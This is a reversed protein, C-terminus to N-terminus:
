ELIFGGGHLEGLAHAEETTIDQQQYLNGLLIRQLDTPPYYGDLPTALQTESSVPKTIYPTVIIVLETQDNQFEQSRFLAGLVPIEGLGPFKEISNNNDNSYLGAIAFSQGSALEVTTEARRVLLTPVNYTVSSSVQLSNISTLSSVEPVVRLSIKGDSMVTPTFELSIGFDRYEVSIQGEPSVNPIPVEGGALFNATQGTTTTLTPEALTSVFGDSELIDIIGSVNGDSGRDWNFFLSNDSGNRTPNGGSLFNRGQLLQFAFNGQNLLATLNIGFRELESRSVEAVKVKLTVQDSGATNIMNLVQEGDGTLFGSALNYIMESQEPTDTFGEMVIGSDVTRFHIDADPVLNEVARKLKSLNHTVEITAEYIPYDNNDLAMFSTEGIARGHVFVTRPSIIQIDAINPNAVMVSSANGDLTVLRGKNYELSLVPMSDFHQQAHASHTLNAVFSLSIIASFLIHRLNM